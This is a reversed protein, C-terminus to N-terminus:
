GETPVVAIWIGACRTANAAFTPWQKRLLRSTQPEGRLSNATQM